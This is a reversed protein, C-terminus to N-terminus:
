NEADEPTPPGPPEERHLPCGARAPRSSRTAPRRRTARRRSPRAWTTGSRQFRDIRERNFSRTFGSRDRGTGPRRPVQALGDAVTPRRHAVVPAVNNLDTNYGSTEAHLVYSPVQSPNNFVGPNAMNCPRGGSRAGFGSPGCVSELTTMTPHEQDWWPCRRACAWRCPSTPSSAGHISAYFGFEDMREAQTLRGNYIYETGSDNLRGTGGITAVRGTLLAYLSRANNLDNNSAAPFNTTNFIGAAPDNTTNFGLTINPM